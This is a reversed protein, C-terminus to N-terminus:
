YLLIFSRLGHEHHRNLDFLSRKLCFVKVYFSSFLDYFPSMFIEGKLDGHLFGDKMAM